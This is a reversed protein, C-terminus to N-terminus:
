LEARRWRQLWIPLSMGHRTGTRAQVQEQWSRQLKRCFVAIPDGEAGARYLHIIEDEAM